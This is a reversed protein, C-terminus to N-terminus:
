YCTLEQFPAGKGATLETVKETYSPYGHTVSHSVDLSRTQKGTVSFTPLTAYARIAQRM